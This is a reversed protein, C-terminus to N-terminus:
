AEEPMPVVLVPENPLGPFGADEDDPFVGWDGPEVLGEHLWGKRTETLPTVVVEVPVGPCIVGGVRKRDTHPRTPKQPWTFDCEPCQWARSSPM